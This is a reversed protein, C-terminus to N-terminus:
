QWASVTPTAAASMKDEETTPKKMWEHFMGLRREVQGTLMTIAEQFEKTLNGICVELEMCLTKELAIKINRLAQKKKKVLKKGEESRGLTSFKGLLPPLAQNIEYLMQQKQKYADAYGKNEDTIIAGYLETRVLAEIKKIAGDYCTKAEVLGENFLTKIFDEESEAGRPNLGQLLRSRVSREALAPVANIIQPHIASMGFVTYKSGTTKTFEDFLVRPHRPRVDSRLDELFKEALQNRKSRSSVIEILPPEEHEEDGYVHVQAFGEKLATMADAFHKEEQQINEGGFPPVKNFANFLYAAIIKSQAEADEHYKNLIEQLDMLLSEAFAKFVPFDDITKFGFPIERTIEAKVAEFDALKKERLCFGAVIIKNKTTIGSDQQTYTRDATQFPRAAFNALTTLRFNAYPEETKLPIRQAVPLSDQKTKHTAIIHEAFTVM